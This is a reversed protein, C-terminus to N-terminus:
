LTGFGVAKAITQQIQSPKIPQIARAIAPDVPARGIATAHLSYDPQASAFSRALTLGCLLLIEPLKM